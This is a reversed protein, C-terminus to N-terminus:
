GVDNSSPIIENTVTSNRCYNGPLPAVFLGNKHDYQFHSVLLAGASKSRNDM